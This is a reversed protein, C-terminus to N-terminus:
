LFLCCGAADRSSGRLSLNHPFLKVTTGVLWISDFNKVNLRFRSNSFVYSNADLFSIRKTRIKGLEGVPPLM